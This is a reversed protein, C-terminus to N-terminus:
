GCGAGRVGCGAVRVGCGAGRLGYMGFRVGCSARRRKHVVSLTCRAAPLPCRAGLYSMVRLVCPVVCLAARQVSFHM